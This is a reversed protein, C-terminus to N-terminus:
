RARSPVRTVIYMENAVSRVGKTARAIKLARRAMKESDVDGSLTVHGGSTTVKIDFGSVYEDRLLRKKLRTTIAADSFFERTREMGADIAAGAREMASEEKEGALSPTPCALLIIVVFAICSFRAM